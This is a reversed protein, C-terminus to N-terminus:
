KPGESPWWRRADAVSYCKVGDVTRSAVRKTKRNKSAAQRLRDGMGKPFEAAPLFEDQTCKVPEDSLLALRDALALAKAAAKHGLPLAILSGYGVVDLVVEPTDSVGQIEDGATREFGRAPPPRLTALSLLAPPVRDVDARSAIQDATVVYM